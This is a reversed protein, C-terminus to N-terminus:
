VMSCFRSLTRCEQCMTDFKSHCNACSTWTSWSWWQREGYLSDFDDALRDIVREDPLTAPPPTHMDLERVFCRLAAEKRLDDYSFYQECHTENVIRCFTENLIKQLHRHCRRVSISEVNDSSKGPSQKKPMMKIKISTESSPGNSKSSTGQSERTDSPTCAAVAANRKKKVM